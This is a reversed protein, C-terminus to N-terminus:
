CLRASADSWVHPRSIRSRGHQGCSPGELVRRRCCHGVSRSQRMNGAPLSLLSSNHYEIYGEQTLDHDSNRFAILKSCLGSGLSIKIERVALVTPWRRQTEQEIRKSRSEEQEKVLKRRNTELVAQRVAAANMMLESLEQKAGKSRAVREEHDKSRCQWRSQQQEAQEQKLHANNARVVEIRSNRLRAREQKEKHHQAKMYLAFSVKSEWRQLDGLGFEETNEKKRIGASQPRPRLKSRVCTGDTVVRAEPSSSRDVGRSRDLHRPTAREFLDAQSQLTSACLEAEWIVQGLLQMVYRTRPSQHPENTPTVDRSAAIVEAKEVGQRWLAQVSYQQCLYSELHNPHGRLLAAAKAVCTPPLHYISTTAIVSSSPRCSPSM